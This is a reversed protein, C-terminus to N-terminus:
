RRTPCAMSDVPQAHVRVPSFPLHDMEGLSKATVESDCRLSM